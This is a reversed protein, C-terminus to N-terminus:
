FPCFMFGVFSFCQELLTQRAGQEAYSIKQRVTLCWQYQGDREDNWRPSSFGCDYQKNLRNQQLSQDVYASCHHRMEDSVTSNAATIREAQLPASFLMVITLCYYCKRLNM